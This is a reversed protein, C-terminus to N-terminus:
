GILSSHLLQPKGQLGRGEGPKEFRKVIKTKPTPSIQHAQAALRRAHGQLLGKKRGFLSMQKQKAKSHRLCM